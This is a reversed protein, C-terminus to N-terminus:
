AAKAYAPYYAWGEHFVTIIRQPFTYPKVLAIVTHVDGYSPLSASYPVEVYDDVGDFSLATQVTRLL